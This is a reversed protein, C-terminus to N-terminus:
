VRGPELFGVEAGADLVWLSEDRGGHQRVQGRDVEFIGRDRANGKADLASAANNIVSRAHDWAASDLTLRITSFEGGLQFKETRGAFSVICERDDQLDVGRVTLEITCAQPEPLPMLLTAEPESWRIRRNGWTEEGHFGRAFILKDYTCGSIGSALDLAFGLNRPDQHSAAPPRPPLSFRVELFPRLFTIKSGAAAITPSTAVTEVLRALWDSDPVTDNNLFALFEGSAKHAGLNNAAAFGLNRDSKIVHVEPFRRCAFEVSDDSSANDVFVIENNTYTQAQLARFLEDLFRRGNHNVIIISVLPTLNRLVRRLRHNKGELVELASSLETIRHDAAVKWDLWEAHRRESTSRLEDTERRLRAVTAEKEELQRDYSRVLEERVDTVARQVENEIRAVTQAQAAVVQAALEHKFTDTLAVQYKKAEELRCQLEQQRRMWGKDRDVVFQIDHLVESQLKTELLECLRFLRPQDVAMWEPLWPNRPTATLHATRWVAYWPISSYDCSDFDALVPASHEDLFINRPILDEHIIVTKTLRPRLETTIWGLMSRYDDSDQGLWQLAGVCRSFDQERRDLEPFEHALLTEFLQRLIGSSAKASVAGSDVAAQLNPLHGLWEEVIGRHTKTSVIAAILPTRIGIRERVLGQIDAIAETSRQHSAPYWKISFAPHGDIRVTDRRTSHNKRRNPTVPGAEIALSKETAGVAEALVPLLRLPTRSDASIRAFAPTDEPRKGDPKPVRAPQGADTPHHETTEM